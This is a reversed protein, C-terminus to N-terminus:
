TSRPSRRTISRRAATMCRSACDTLRRRSFLNTNSTTVSRSLARTPRSVFSATRECFSLSVDGNELVERSEVRLSYSYSALTLSQPQMRRTEVTVFLATNTSQAACYDNPGFFYSLDRAYLSALSEYYNDLFAAVLASEAMPLETSIDSLGFSASNEPIKPDLSLPTAADQEPATFHRLLVFAITLLSLAIVAVVVAKKWTKDFFLM